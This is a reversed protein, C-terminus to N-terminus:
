GAKPWRARHPERRRRRGDEADFIDAVKVEITSVGGSLDLLTQAARLSVFVWRENLDSNGVDFIGTIPFM